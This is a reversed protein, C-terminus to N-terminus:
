PALLGSLFCGSGGGIGGKGESYSFTVDITHDATVNTFTYSIIDEQSVGDVMVKQVAYGWNPTITFTQSAGQTVNVKGSPTISGGGGATATIIYSPGFGAEFTASIVHDAAVNTFTYSTIAGQSVGDVVVNQVKFGNNPSISFLPNAGPAVSVAGIPSISGGVGTTATITYTFTFKAIFADDGGDKFTKQIANVTPFNSSKTNGTMYAGGASDVAVGYGIEDGSGGLYTSFIMGNGAANIK